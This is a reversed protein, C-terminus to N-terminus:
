RVRVLTESSQWSGAAIRYIYVGSPLPLGRQDRGDWQYTHFGPAFYADVLHAVHQGLMNYVDIQVREETQEGPIGFSFTVENIFPNPYTQNLLFSDPTLAEEQSRVFGTSGILLVFQEEEAQMDFLAHPQEHLDIRRGSTSHILVVEQHELAVLGTAELSVHAGPEASLVVTYRDGEASQPRYEASLWKYSTELDPSHLRLSLASFANPPAFQDFLDLAEEASDDFGIYATAAYTEAGATLTLAPPPATSSRDLGRKISVAHKFAAAEEILSVPMPASPFPIILSDLVPQRGNYFYYGKFPELTTASQHVNEFTWLSDIKNNAIQIDQWSVNTLFPNTIINWGEHLDIKFTNDLALAVAEIDRSVQQPDLHVAWFGRGPRFSFINDQNSSYTEFYSAPNGGERGTDFFAFWDDGPDGVFIDSLPIDIDGPLGVLRYDRPQTGEGGFRLSTNITRTDPYTFPTVPNLAIGDSDLNDESVAIVRYRYSTNPTVTSDIYSRETGSLSAIVADNREIRYGTVDCASGSSWTIVVREPGGRATTQPAQPTCLPASVEESFDSSVDVTAFARVRYFYTVDPVISADRYSLSDIGSALITEPMSVTGRYLTYSAAGASESWSLEVFDTGNVPRAMIPANPIVTYSKVDTSDVLGASDQAVADFTILTGGEFGPLEARYLSESQLVMDIPEQANGNVSWRIFVDELNNELDSATAEVISPAGDVPQGFSDIRISPPSNGVGISISFTTEDSADLGGRETGGDDSLQVTVAVTGTDGLVPEYTLTATSDDQITMVPLTAFLADNDTSVRFSLAQGQENAPGPIVETAWESVTQPGADEKVALNPGKEFGPADNVPNITISCSQPLSTDTGGNEEGGDDMLTISLTAVGFADPAPEFQLEGSSSLSPGVAFLGPANNEIFFTLAQDGEGPGADPQTWDTLPLVTADEDVTVAPGCAFTPADNVPSITITFTMPATADVGGNDTTGDDRVTVTVTASGYANPAPEYVLTGTEPDITLPTAFLADNTTMVEATLSQDAENPGPNGPSSWGQVTQPGADELVEQDSGVTFTPADNVRDVTLSFTDTTSNSPTTRDTATVALTATGYQNPQYTLTLTSGTISADVLSPSSNTTINYILNDGDEPDEFVANLDYTSPTADEDVRVPGIANEVVPGQNIIEFSRQTTFTSGLYGHDISQVSWYYTGAPLREINFSRNQGMNGLRAVRRSGSDNAMPSVIDGGGPTTGIRLNYSLGSSPTETDTGIGWTLRVTQEDPMSDGPSSPSGPANNASAAASINRYLRFSRGSGEKGSVALDLKRDNDFDGWALSAESVGDLWLAATFANNDNEYLQVAEVDSPISENLGNVAIDLDGDNDYDGWAANGYGRGTLNAAISFTGNSNQYVRTFPSSADNTGNVLIDLDGDNDYDGWAGTGHHLGLLSFASNFAGNGNNRYVQTTVGSLQRGLLLLDQDGDNDYDGWALSGLDIDAFSQSTEVFTGDVNQYLRTALNSDDIRGAIILDLDGDGDYDGWAATSYLLKLLDAGIDTFSGNGENRYIRGVGAFSANRGVMALDLDGDNDYDGWVVDGNSINEFGVSVSTFTNNGNNRYLRTTFGSSACDSENGGQLSTCGVAILDLDGDNDYDGWDLNSDEIGTLGAQIDGLPLVIDFSQEGAFPSGEYSGDISQVSWYYRGAPLNQIDFSRNLGMNGIRVVQRFGNSSSAMPSLIDSGGPTTGIRLNYTLGISPTLDDSGLGWNLTATGGNPPVEENLSGPAAPNDNSVATAENRYLRTARNSGDKGSVVLDLKGDTNLDIWNLSANSAANLAIELSFTGTDNIYIGTEETGDNKLGVVAVDLDGDNDYDGWEAQGFGHGTVNAHVAFGSGTNRYIRTFATDNNDRGTLVIDLDGDNDYDGWNGTGHHLGLLNIPLNFTGNGNNRYVHTVLGGSSQRGMLLLDLDGDNDYDGWALDGLDVGTFSLGSDNFFGNDNRYLRTVLDSEEALRGSIILDLDGDNDYDGWATASYRAQILNANINTFTGSGNNRYISSTGTFSANRGVLALDLDGDNDYDGWAPEGYALNPFGPTSITSFTNNGDNRYLRTTFGSAACDENSQLVSCGTIILDLRGDDNYDGWDMNSQELGVLAGIEPFPTPAEVIDFTQETAFSSGQFSHDISQVSWYYTGTPLDRLEFALNAGMNGIRPVRRFGDSRAMPGVIQSGGPTTGVRLNYTLSGTEPDLGANWNLQVPGGEAILTESLNSPSSPSANSSIPKENRYLRTTRSSGEKGSILLDLKGDNDYDAWALSANRMGPFTVSEVLSSEVLDYISTQWDGEGNTGSVAVDLDGDNDFDGWAAQGFGGHPISEILTFNSGNNQYIQTFAVNSGSADNNGSIMIDLDGDDDYDGWTGSGEKLDLLSIGSDSFTGNTNNRYIKTIPVSSTQVSYERGTMLLDIFGDNNYDGWEISGLDIGTFSLGADTFVGADNRYLRTSLSNSADIRGGVILDLDGDNDYDGWAASAYRPQILNANINTFTGNGNNRYIAATGGFSSNRGALVLDLDGDNDYDGWAPEGYALNPFGTLSVGEFIDTGNNRHLSTTFGSSACDQSGQLASCGVAILDLDGDNDYDGWAVNSHELDPFFAEVETFQAYLAHPFLAFASFLYM